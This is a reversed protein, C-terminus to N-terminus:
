NTHNSEELDPAWSDAVRLARCLLVSAQTHLMCVPSASTQFPNVDEADTLFRRVIEPGKYGPALMGPGAYDVLALPWPTDIEAAGGDESVCFTTAGSASGLVSKVVTIHSQLTAVAWFARIREGEELADAPPPLAPYVEPPPPTGVLNARASRMKHLGYGLALTAAGNACVEAELVRATRLLYTALLILAQIIHLVPTTHASISFDIGLRQRACELFRSEAEARLQGHSLHAGWPYTTCLLATSPRRPDGFALPLLAADRPRMPHLFFGFQATHPLFTHLLTDIVMVPPEQFGVFTNGSSPSSQSGSSSGSFPSSAGCLESTPGPSHEPGHYNPTGELENLRSRLRFVTSELEQTRSMTDTFECEDEKPSAACQDCETANRRIHPIKLHWFNLCAKGRRLPQSRAKQNSDDSIM